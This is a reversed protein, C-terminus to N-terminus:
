ESVSKKGQLITTFGAETIIDNGISNYLDKTVIEFSKISFNDDKNVFIPESFKFYVEPYQEKYFETRMALPLVAIKTDIKEVIKDIGRGFKYKEIFQAELAGQPFITIIPNQYEDILSKTYNISEVIKKPSNQDISYGGLKTFFKYKALQEELILIFFKRKFYEKNLLYVFFGDWWTSHNPALIIPINKNIKPVDGFLKISHFHKKMLRYIYPKFVLDAWKKHEAKLM